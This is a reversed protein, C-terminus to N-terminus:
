PHSRSADPFAARLNRGLKAIGKKHSKDLLIIPEGVRDQRSKRDLLRQAVAVKGPPNLHKQRCWTEVAVARGSQPVNKTSYLVPLSSSQFDELVENVAEVYCAKDILDELSIGNGIASDLGFIAKKSIGSAALRKQHERGEDDGDTLFLVSGGESGLGLLQTPGVAALGPAIQFPLLDTGLAERLLTPLLMADTVGETILVNRAPLFAFTTAGMGFILPTFGAENGSWISNKVSSRESRLDPTVARIGNGLDRPLCGASHTTYIIKGALSQESFLDILNAQADYHLHMEAEDVLLIPPVDFDQQALFARLAVFTLLGASREEITTFDGGPISVLIELVSSQIEVRVTVESQDWSRSFVAKLRANAREILSARMGPDNRASAEFLKELDLEALKALNYLASPLDERDEALDYTTRLDRDEPSFLTFRPRRGLLLRGAELNPAPGEDYDDLEDLFERFASSIADEADEDSESSAEEDLVEEDTDAANWVPLTILANVFQSIQRIEVDSLTENDTELAAVTADYLTEVNAGDIANFEILSEENAFKRLIRAYAHRPSLDRGPPQPHLQFTYTGNNQKRLTWWRVKTGGPVHGMADRDDEDVIYGVRISTEGQWNRTKERLTFAESKDLSLMAQLISSKGAENPGVLAVVSGAVDVETRQQFRKYGELTISMLRM